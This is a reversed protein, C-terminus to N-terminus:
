IKFWVCLTKNISVLIFCKLIKFNFVKKKITIALIDFSKTTNILISSIEINNQHMLLFINLDIIRENKSIEAFEIQIYVM